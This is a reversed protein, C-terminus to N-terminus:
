ISQPPLSWYNWSDIPSELDDIPYTPDIESAAFVMVHWPLTLHNVEYGYAAGYGTVAGDQRTYMHEWLENAWGPDSTVNHYYTASITSPLNKGKLLNAFPINVFDENFYFGPVPGYHVTGPGGKRQYYNVFKKTNSLVGSFWVWRVARAPGDHVPDMVVMSEIPVDVQFSYGWRNSGARLTRSVNVATIGGWSFALFHVRVAAVEAATIIQDQPSGNAGDIKALLDRMAKRGRDFKYPEGYSDADNGDQNVSAFGREGLADTLVEVRVDGVSLANFTDIGYWSVVLNVPTASNVPENPSEYTDLETEPPTTAHAINSTVLPVGSPDLATVRHWVTMSEDLGQASAYSEDAALAVSQNFTVGDFSVELLYQSAGGV